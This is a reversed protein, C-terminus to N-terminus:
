TNMLTNSFNDSDSTTSKNGQFDNLNKCLSREIKLKVCHLLVYNLM